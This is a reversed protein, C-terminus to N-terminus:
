QKDLWIKYEKVLENDVGNRLAAPLFSITNLVANGYLKTIVSEHDTLMKFFREKEEQTLSIIINYSTTNFFHTLHDQLYKNDNDDATVRVPRKYSYTAM